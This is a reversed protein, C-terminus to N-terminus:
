RMQGSVVLWGVLLGVALCVVGAAFIGYTFIGTTRDIVESEDTKIPNVVLNVPDGVKYDPPSSATDSTATHERGDATYKYTPAYLTTGKSGQQEEFGVVTGQLHLWTAVKKRTSVISAYGLYTFLVGVGVFMLVLVYPGM